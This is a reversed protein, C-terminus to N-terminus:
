KVGFTVTGLAEGNALITAETDLGFFWTRHVVALKGIVRVSQQGEITLSGLYENSDAETVTAEEHLAIALEVNIAQTGFNALEIVFDYEDGGLRDRRAIGGDTPTIWRGALSAGAPAEGATLKSRILKQVRPNSLQLLFGPLNGILGADGVDGPSGSIGSSSPDGGVDSVGGERRTSPDAGAHAAQALKWAGFSALSGGVLWFLARQKPALKPGLMAVALGGALFGIGEGSSM